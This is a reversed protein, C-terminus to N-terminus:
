RQVAGGPAVRIRGSLLFCGAGRRARVGGRRCLKGASGPVGRDEARRARRLPFKVGNMTVVTSSKEGQVLGSKRPPLQELDRVRPDVREAIAAPKLKETLEALLTQRVPEADMAQTLFQFSLLDNYRDVILGPLFDGESFILRYADTDRVVRERYALADSIRQRLLAPFDFVPERSVMRVAIQSSSSYLASGLLNGREDAVASWRAPCCATRRLWM